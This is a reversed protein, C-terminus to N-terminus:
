IINGIIDWENSGIRKITLAAKNGALDCTVSATPSFYNITVGAATAIQWSPGLTGEDWFLTVETGLPFLTASDLPITLVNAGAGILRIYSNEWDKYLTIAGTEASEIIPTTETCCAIREKLKEIERELDTSSSNYFKSGKPANSFM